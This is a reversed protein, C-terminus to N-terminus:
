SAGASLGGPGSASGGHAKPEANLDAVTHIEARLGQQAPPLKWHGLLAVAGFFCARGGSTRLPLCIVEFAGDGSKVSAGTIRGFGAHPNLTSAARALVDRVLDSDKRGARLDLKQGPVSWGIYDSLETGVFRFTFDGNPSADVIFADCLLQAYRRPDQSVFDAEEPPSGRMAAAARWWTLAARLRAGGLSPESM